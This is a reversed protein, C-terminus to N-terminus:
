AWIMHLVRCLTLAKAYSNPLIIFALTAPSGRSIAAASAHRQHEHGAPQDAAVGGPGNQRDRLHMRETDRWIAKAQIGVLDGL